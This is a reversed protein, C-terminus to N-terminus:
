FATHAGSESQVELATGVRWDAPLTISADVPIRRAYFGAPYLVLTNWNLIAIERSIELEGVRPSTPSLYDFEIDISRDGPALQLRFAYVDIPDRAWRVAAGNASIKIGALREIPGLPAHNGPLWKPFLLVTEADVGSLTERVHVIRREADSADVALRIEGPYSRDKPSAIPAMTMTWIPGSSAQALGVAALAGCVAMAALRM